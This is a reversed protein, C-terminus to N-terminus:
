KQPFIDDITYKKGSLALKNISNVIIAQNAPMPCDESYSYRALSAVALGSERSLVSQKIGEKDIIRRFITKEKTTM